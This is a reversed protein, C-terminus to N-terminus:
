RINSSGSKKKFIHLSTNKENESLGLLVYYMNSVLSVWQIEKSPNIVVFTSQGMVPASTMLPNLAEVIILIRLCYPILPLTAALFGNRIGICTALRRDRVTTKETRSSPTQHGCQQDGLVKEVAGQSCLYVM